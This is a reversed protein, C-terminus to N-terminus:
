LAPELKLLKALLTHVKGNLVSRRGLRVLMLCGKAFIDAMGRAISEEVKIVFTELLAYASVTPLELVSTSPPEIQLGSFGKSGITSDQSDKTIHNLFM